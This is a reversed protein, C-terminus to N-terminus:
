SETIVIKCTQKFIKQDIRSNSFGKFTLYTISITSLRRGLQVVQTGDDVDVTKTLRVRGRQFVIKFGVLGPHLAEAEVGDDHVSVINLYFV